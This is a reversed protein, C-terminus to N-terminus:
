TGLINQCSVTLLTESEKLILKKDRPMTAAPVDNMLVALIEVNLTAPIM